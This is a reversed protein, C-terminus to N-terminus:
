MLWMSVISTWILVRGLRHYQVLCWFLLFDFFFSHSIVTQWRFYSHSARRLPWCCWASCLHHDWRVFSDCDGDQRVLPFVSFQLLLSIESINKSTKLFCKNLVEGSREEKPEITKRVRNRNASKVLRKRVCISTWPFCDRRMFWDVQVGREESITGGEFIVKPIKHDFWISMAVVTIFIATSLMLASAHM